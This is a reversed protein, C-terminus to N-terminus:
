YGHKRKGHNVMELEDVLIQFDLIGQSLGLDQNVYESELEEDPEITPVKELRKHLSQNRLILRGKLEHNQFKVRELETILKRKTEMAYQNINTQVQAKFTM